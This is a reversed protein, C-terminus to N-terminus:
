LFQLGTKSGVLLLFGTVDVASKELGETILHFM